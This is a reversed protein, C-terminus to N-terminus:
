SKGYFKKNLLFLLLNVNVKAKGFMDMIAKGEYQLQLLEQIDIEASDMPIGMFCGKVLFVGVSESPSIEFQVSKFQNSPLGQMQHLVGKAHLQAATYKLVKQTKAKGPHQGSLRLTHVRKKGSDLSALCTEIYKNYFEVQKQYWQNKQELSSITNKLLVMENRRAQCYQGRNIIDKAVSSLLQQYDNESSVLGQQELKGLWLQLRRKSLHLNSNNGSQQSHISNQQKLFQENQGPLEQADLAETLSSGKLFPLLAVLLEKAMIFMQSQNPEQKGNSMQETLVELKSNSLTLTIDGKPLLSDTSSGGLLKRVSTLPGLGELISHLPDSQKPAIDDEYQLVLQHTDWLEQLSILITPKVIMTAESYAHVGFHEELDEVQCCRTLFKKFKEHCQIIFPNLVKLHSSEEGFGKKSAAYQLIKAISALNNRQDATLTKDAPLTVVDYADPAVIAANIFHYYVVHGIVKLLDKEPFGPFRQALANHLTRATHLLSYPLQEREECIRELFLRVTEQLSQIGKQLRKQVEEHALAEAVTVNRPLDSAAGTTMEMKNIWSNYIEIPNTEFVTSKDNVVRQILPGLIERLANQGSHQRSFNVAIKLVQPYVKLIDVPEKFKCKIEEELATKLLNLLMYEDRKSSGFNFLSFIVDQLFHMSKSQPLCFLLKSLYRPQTQLLYFLNQYGELLHRGEKTLSKLGKGGLFSCGVSPQDSMSSKPGRALDSMQSHHAQVDHLSIRNQVLLGIKVDMDELQQSLTQNHRISKAIKAKLLQIENEKHFESNNPALITAFQRVINLSPNPQHVLQLFMKRTQHGRWLAQLRVIKQVHKKYYDLNQKQLRSARKAAIRAELQKRGLVARWWRQILVIQNLLHADMADPSTSKESDYDSPASLETNLMDVLKEIEKLSLYPSNELTEPPNWEFSKTKLNIYAKHNKKTIYILCPSTYKKAVKQKYCDIFLRMYDRFYEPCIKPKQHLPAGELAKVLTKEDHEKLALHIKILSSCAQEAERSEADAMRIAEEADSLWLESSERDEEERIAQLIRLYLRSNKEEVPLVIQSSLIELAGFVERQNDKLVARNLKQLAGVMQNQMDIKQHVQTVCDDIDFYTLMPCRSKELLKKQRMEYFTKWYDDIFYEDLDFIDGLNKLARWMEKTNNKDVALTVCAIKTLLDICGQIEKITLDRELDSRDNKMEFHYLPAAEPIVNDLSLAPNQLAKLTEVPTGSRLAKNVNWMAELRLASQLAINNGATIVNQLIQRCRLSDPPTEQLDNNEVMGRLDKMYHGICKDDVAKLALPVARLASKLAGEDGDEVAKLVANWAVAINVSNIYGQIEAQTLLEDYVDATYSDSLSKNQAVATKDKKAQVMVAKYKGMHDDVVWKLKAVSAKLAHLFNDGEKKDLTENIAIIASHLAAKDVPMENALLGGIKQFLPMQVGVKVLEKKMVDIEADTFYAKGYLDGMAPTKGLRFLHTSLAHICYIVRPMNKKDYVDTTEPFFTRPLKVADLSAIWKNINDTHRFQLGFRDYRSQDIDYIKSLSVVEPAILHGLRALVVGNRLNEELETLPPLSIQLISELWKKSEELHCLYQYAMDQLRMEDMNEYKDINPRVIGPADAKADTEIVGPM